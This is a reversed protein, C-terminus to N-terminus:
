NGAQDKGIVAKAAVMGSVMVASQGGGPFTWAGALLLNDIPTQQPMRNDMSQEPINDWGFISGKPSLTFGKMTQPTAIEMVEIHQTLGPLFDTETRNVLTMATQHRFKEYASHNEEWHWQDEWDFTMITGIVIVNKGAPAVEPDLMGYNLVAYSANQVDSNKYSDFNKAQDYSESFMIEHTGKFAESYDHDVGLYVQLMTLGVKYSEDNGGAIKDPHFFSKANDPMHEAGVMGLLTSRADANSIVYDTEYCVGDDTRVRTALGDEIDIKTVLSHPRVVSGNEEVVEAMAQTIAGSGGVPYYFGGLHYSNWMAMFFLASVDDPSGGAFGALQTWIAILKQDTIYDALFESLSTGEMYKQVQLLKNMLGKATIEAVMELADPSTLDSINKGAKQYKFIVRMVRDVQRMETFLEDLGDAEDPFEEKLMALYEDEDAPILLQRDPYVTLYMPDGEHATLKDLIGLEEFTQINMGYATGENENYIEPDLGDFAHLSAEFRYDGRNFSVMYGGVKYHKELVVTNMGNKALYAGASIGGGGGGIVVVDVQETISCSGDAPPDYKHCARCGDPSDLSIGSHADSHCTACNKDDHGASRLSVGNSGHCTACTSPTYDANNHVGEHCSLCDTNKWGEHGESLHASNVHPTAASMYDIGAGADSDTDTTDTDTTETDVGGDGDASEDDDGCGIVLSVFLLISILGTELMESKLTRM